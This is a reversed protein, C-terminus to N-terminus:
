CTVDKKKIYGYVNPYLNVIIAFNCVVISSSRYGLSCIVIVVGPGNSCM